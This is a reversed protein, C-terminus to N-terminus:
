VRESLKTKLTTQKSFDNLNAGVTVVRGPTEYPKQTTFNQLSRRLTSRLVLQVPPLIVRTVPFVDMDSFRKMVPLHQKKRKVLGPSQQPKYSAYKQTASSLNYTSKAIVHLTLCAIVMASECECHCLWPSPEQPLQVFSILFNQHGRIYLLRRATRALAIPIDLAVVVM